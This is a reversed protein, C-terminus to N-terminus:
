MKGMALSEGIIMGSHQDLDSLLLDQREKLKEAERRSEKMQLATCIVGILKENEWPKVIFDFAGSRMASVALDVGGYATIFVVVAAPDQELIKGLWEIGESGDNKGPSFNMDLLIVDFRVEEMLGPIQEPKSCTIVV